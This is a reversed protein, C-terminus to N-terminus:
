KRMLEPDPDRWYCKRDKESTCPTVFKWNKGAYEDGDQTANLDQKTKRFSGAESALESINPLLAPFSRIM